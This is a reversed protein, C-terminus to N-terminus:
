RRWRSGNPSNSGHIQAHCNQCSRGRIQDPPAVNVGGVPGPVPNRYTHGMAGVQNHCNLCLQPRTFRLLKEQNSGHPEHCNLCNERVPAHEWIFPGRKEAHCTYCLDNTSDAKLLRKNTSGHPNHCDECSMKGEPLPM